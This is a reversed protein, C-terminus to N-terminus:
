APPRDAHVLTMTARAVLADGATRTEADFHSVETSGRVLEVRLVLEEGVALWPRELKLSRCAVIMGVRAPTAGVRGAEAGLCAAIAQAMYELTAVASVRGARALLGDRVTLRVTARGTESALLEEIALMPPAHPVLGAVPAGSV